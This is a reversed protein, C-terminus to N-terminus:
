QSFSVTGGVWCGAAPDNHEFRVNIESPRNMAFGQGVRISSQGDVLGRDLLGYALAAAAIGTAPDEPYGSSQPFQRAVFRQEDGAVPSYPYIGTSGYRDCWQEVLDYKPRLRDLFAEYPLPVLTKIRTTSANAVNLQDIFRLDIDLAQALHSLASTDSVPVVKGVPQSIEIVADPDSPSESRARVSGAPTGITVANRTILGKRYLVWLAGITAHGCMTMEHRPAWYRMSFDALSTPDPNLVFGVELSHERAIEQMEVDTLNDADTVVPVPNGGGPGAAFVTVLDITPM